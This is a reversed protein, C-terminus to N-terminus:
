QEQYTRVMGSHSNLTTVDWTSSAQAFCSSLEARNALRVARLREDKWNLKYGTEQRILQKVLDPSYHKPDFKVTKLGPRDLGAKNTRSGPLYITGNTFDVAYAIVGPIIFFLLGIGDLLVVGIDLRGDKQGKREPYMITGCSALQLCMTFVFAARLWELFCKM